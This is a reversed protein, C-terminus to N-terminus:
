QNYDYDYDEEKTNDNKKIFLYDLSNFFVVFNTRKIIM